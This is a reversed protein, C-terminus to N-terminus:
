KNKHVENFTIRIEIYNDRKDVPHTIIEYNSLIYERGYRRLLSYYNQGPYQVVM